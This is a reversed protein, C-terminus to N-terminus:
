LKKWVSTLSTIDNGEDDKILHVIKIKNGEQEETACMTRVMHGYTIEKIFVINIDELTYNTIIEQPVVELAWEVYRTNNVHKNSDIDSYRVYFEKTYQAEELKDPENMPIAEDIDGNCGYAEYLDKPIRSPRRRNIDILFFLSMGEAILNDEEDYLFYERYAYFKKFGTPITKIKINEGFGPYRYVKLNYKYFVWTLNKELLKDVGVELRESQQMGIDCLFDFISTIKCKLGVDLNYYNIPYIYEFSKGM